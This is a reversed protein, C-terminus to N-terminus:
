NGNRAGTRAAIVADYLPRLSWAQKIWTECDAFNQTRWRDLIVAIELIHQAANARAQESVRALGALLLIVVNIVLCTFCLFYSGTLIAIALTGFILKSSRTAKQDALIVLQINLPYGHPLEQLYPSSSSPPNDLAKPSILRTLFDSDHIARQLFRDRKWLQWLFSGALLAVIGLVVEIAITFM